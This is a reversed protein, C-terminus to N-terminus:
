KSSCKKILLLLLLLSRFDCLFKLASLYTIHHLSQCVSSIFHTELANGSSFSQLKLEIKSVSQEDYCECVSAPEAEYAIEVTFLYV